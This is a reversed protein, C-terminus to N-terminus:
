YTKDRWTQGTGRDREHHSQSQTMFVDKDVYHQIVTGIIRMIKTLVQYHYM